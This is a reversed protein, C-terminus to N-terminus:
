GELFKTLIRCSIVESVSSVFAVSDTRGSAIGGKLLVPTYDLDQAGRYTSLVCYEAAYGSLVLTDVGEKKLIASLDTKNFSNSYTKNVRCDNEGPQLADILDYGETGPVVGSERDEDQIWIVPCGAKRFRPIMENIYESAHNMSEVANGRYYAKQMDIILFAIKM